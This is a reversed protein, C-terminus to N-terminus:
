TTIQSTNRWKKIYKVIPNKEIIEDIAREVEECEEKQTMDETFNVIRGLYNTTYYGKERDFSDWLAFQEFPDFPNDETTLM